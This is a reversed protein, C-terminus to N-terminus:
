NLERVETPLNQLLLSMKDFNVEDNGKLFKIEEKTIRGGLPKKANITRYTFILPLYRFYSGIGLKESITKVKLYDFTNLAYWLQCFDERFEDKLQCYFGHDLQVIQPENPKKPNPRVMMNGPHADCHVFGHVFIMKAFVEVLISSAKMAGQEGFQEQLKEVEDIRQGRCFEM